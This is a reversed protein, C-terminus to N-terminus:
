FLSESTNAKDLTKDGGSAGVIKWDGDRRQWILSYDGALTNKPADHSERVRRYRANFIGSVTASDGRIEYTEATRTAEIKSAELFAGKLLKSLGDRNSDNWKFDDAVYALVGRPSTSEVASQLGDMDRRLQQEPTLKPRLLFLAVVIVALSGAVVLVRNRTLLPKKEIPRTPNIM